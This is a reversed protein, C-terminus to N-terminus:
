VSYEIHMTSSITKMFLTSYFILLVIIGTFALGTWDLGRVLFHSAENRTTCLVYFSFQYFSSRGLNTSILEILFFMSSCFFTSRANHIIYLCFSCFTIQLTNEALVVCQQSNVSRIYNFTGTNKTKPTLHRQKQKFVRPIFGRFQTSRNSRYKRRQPSQISFISYQISISSAPSFIANEIKWWLNKQETKQDTEETKCSACRVVSLRCDVISLIGAAFVGTCFSNIKRRLIKIRTVSNSSQIKLIPGCQYKQTCHVIEMNVCVSSLVNKIEVHVFVVRM